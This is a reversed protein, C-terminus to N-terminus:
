IYPWSFSDIVKQGEASSHSDPSGVTFVGAWGNTAIKRTNMKVRLAYFAFIFNKQV